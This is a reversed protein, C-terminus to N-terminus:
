LPAVTPTATNGNLLGVSPSWQFTDALLSTAEVGISIGPFIYTEESVSVDPIDTNSIIVSDYKPACAGNSVEWVLLHEGKEIDELGANFLFTDVLVIDEDTTIWRGNGVEPEVANLFTQYTECLHQ